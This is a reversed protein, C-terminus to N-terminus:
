DKTDLRLFDPAVCDINTVVEGELLLVVKCLSVFARFSLHCDYLWYLRGLDMANSTLLWFELLLRLFRCSVLLLRM